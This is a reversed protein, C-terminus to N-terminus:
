GGSSFVLLAAIEATQQAGGLVDGTLGGIQREALKATAYAAGVSLAGALLATAPSVGMAIPLISFASALLAATQLAEKFPRMAAHGAGDARAPALVMIPTLGATRSLAAVFVLIAAAEFSGRQAIATLAGIRLALSLTLALAGYSGLRSDRMIELKEERSAGGGFGDALDALGDEHLAGTAAILAALALTVALFPPLGLARAALLTGAPALAILAGALPLARVATRFDPMEHGRPAPVPLRSYFRLCALFDDVFPRFM